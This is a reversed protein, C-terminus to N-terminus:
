GGPSRWGRQALMVGFSALKLLGVTICTGALGLVPLLVVSGIMGGCWGGLLDSAYLLGATRDPSANEGFHIRNALPFQAGVLLGSIVSVGICAIKVAPFVYPGAFCSLVARFLLPLGVALGVIALDVAMFLRLCNKIRATLATILMAGAAAGAMFAAVLIGIWSFVYGFISQFAFIIVLDFLMGAFGTTMIALPIGAPSAHEKRSRFLACPLFLVVLVLVVTALNIRELVGFLRCLGPAFLSNWYSISYFVGVPKFDSNIKRSGDEVFGAFWDEWGDHLKNEIRWPPMAETGINRERARETIRSKDIAAVGPSNSALFLNRGDGPIVRVHAFVTELTRFICSNLNKLEESSYTLSGPLGAVLIGGENLRENALAFFESTFFRNAQLTSPEMIGVLILDYKNKTTKLLLRGDIRKVRVRPDNLESETLPTPVQRLMDILLPDLEAYEVTRVSPHKLAESIVGGAGGSLVLIDGPGPHTLLPLHVFEEIFPIDPVPTILGPVGDLFFIYQGENEIVCINGYQSNKYHLVNHDQWQARISRRHIARAQGGLLLYGSFFVLLILVVVGTKHAPGRKWRAALLAFCVAFNLLAVASVTQFTDLYPVLVYTCILGGAITGITECAYVKGALSEARGTLELYIRCCVPFLAGHLVSVPLLILFSCYVVTTLGVSEGLSVGIMRKLGRIPFPTALLALSFLVTLLAFILLQDRAKGTKRGLFFSGFAELILWNALIIGISLENGSFVILLERLLVIEAVLGSFGM